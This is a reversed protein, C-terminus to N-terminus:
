CPFLLKQKSTQKNTSDRKISAYIESTGRNLGCKRTFQQEFYFNALGLMVWLREHTIAQRSGESCKTLM